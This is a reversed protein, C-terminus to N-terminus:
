GDTKGEGQLLATIGAKVGSVEAARLARVLRPALTYAAWDTLLRPSKAFRCSVEREKMECLADRVDHYDTM